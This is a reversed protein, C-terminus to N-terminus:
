MAEKMPETAALAPNCVANLWEDQRKRFYALDENRGVIPASALAERLIGVTWVGGYCDDGYIDDSPDAPNTSENASEAFSHANPETNPETM